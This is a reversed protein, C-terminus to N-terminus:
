GFGAPSQFATDTRGAPCRAGFPHSGLGLNANPLLSAVLELSEQAQSFKSTRVADAALRLREFMEGFAVVDLDDGDLAMALQLTAQARTLQGQDLDERIEDM